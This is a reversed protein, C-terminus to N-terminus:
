PALTIQKLCDAYDEGDLMEFCFYIDAGKKRIADRLFDLALRNCREQYADWQMLSKPSYDAIVDVYPFVLNSDIRAGEIGLVSMGASGCATVFQQADEGNLFIEGSPRVKAREIFPAYMEEERMM